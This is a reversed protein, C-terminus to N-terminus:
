YHHGTNRQIRREFDSKSTFVSSCDDTCAKPGAIVYLTKPMLSNQIRMAISVERDLQSYDAKDIHLRYRGYIHDFEFRGSSDTKTSHAVAGDRVLTVEVGELPKGEPNVFVGHLRWVQIPEPKDLQNWAQGFAAIWEAALAGIV